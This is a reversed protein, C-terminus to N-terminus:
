FSLGLKEATAGAGLRSQLAVAMVEIFDKGAAPPFNFYEHGSIGHQSAIRDATYHDKGRMAIEYARQAEGLEECIKIAHFIYGAQEYLPVAQLKNGSQVVQNAKEFLEKPTPQESNNEPESM